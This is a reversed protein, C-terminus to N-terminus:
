LERIFSTVYLNLLGSATLLDGLIQTKPMNRPFDLPIKPVKPSHRSPNQFDGIIGWFEGFINVTTLQEHKYM